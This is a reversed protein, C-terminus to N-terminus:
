NFNFMPMDSLFVSKFIQLLCVITIDKRQLFDAFPSLLFNYFSSKLGLICNNVAPPNQLTTRVSLSVAM